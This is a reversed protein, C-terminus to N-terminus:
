PDRAGVGCESARTRMSQKAHAILITIFPPHCLLVDRGMAAHVSLSTWFRSKSSTALNRCPRVQFISNLRSQVREM